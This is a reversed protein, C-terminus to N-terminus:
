RLTRERGAVFSSIEATLLQYVLPPLGEIVIRWAASDSTQARSFVSSNRKRLAAGEAEPVAGAAGKAETVPVAGLVADAGVTGALGEVLPVTGAGVGASAEAGAGASAEADAGASAEADVEASAEAGVGASAGAGCGAGAAAEAGADM